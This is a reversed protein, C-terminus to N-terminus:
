YKENQYLNREIVIVGFTAFLNSLKKRDFLGSLLHEAIAAL